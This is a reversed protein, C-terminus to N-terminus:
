LTWFLCVFDTPLSFFVFDRFSNKEITNPLDPPTWPCPMSWVFRNGRVKTPNKLKAATKTKKFEQSGKPLRSIRGQRGIKNKTPRERPRGSFGHPPFDMPHSIRPFDMSLDMSLDLIKPFGSKPSFDLNSFLNATKWLTKELKQFSTYHKPMLKEIRNWAHYDRFQHKSPFRRNPNSVINLFYCACYQYFLLCLYHKRRKTPGSIPFFVSRIWSNNGM